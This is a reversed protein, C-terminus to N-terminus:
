AIGIGTRAIATAGSLVKGQKILDDLSDSGIVVADTPEGGLFRRAVGGSPGYSVQLKNGREREFSPTLADVADKMATTILAHVDAAQAPVTAALASAVTFLVAAIRM